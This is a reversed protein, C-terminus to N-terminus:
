GLTLIDIVKVVAQRFQPAQHFTGATFHELGDVLFTRAGM